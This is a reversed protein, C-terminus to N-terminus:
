NLGYKLKIHTLDHLFDRYRQFVEHVEAIEIEDFILKETRELEPEISTLVSKLKDLRYQKWDTRTIM